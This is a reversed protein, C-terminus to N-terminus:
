FGRFVLILLFYSDAENRYVLLAFIIFSIKGKPIPSPTPLFTPLPVPTPETPEDKSEKEVGPIPPGGHCDTQSFCKKPEANAVNTTLLVFRKRILSYLFVDKCMM